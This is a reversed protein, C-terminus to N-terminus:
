ACGRLSTIEFYRPVAFAFCVSHISIFSVTGTKNQTFERM